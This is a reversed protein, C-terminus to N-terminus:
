EDQDHYVFEYAIEKSDLTISLETEFREQVFTYTLGKVSRLEWGGLGNDIKDVYDFYVRNSANAWYYHEKERSISIPELGAPYLLDDYGHTVYLQENHVYPEKGKLELTSMAHFIEAYELKPYNFTIHVWNEDTFEVFFHYRLAADMTKAHEIYMTMPYPFNELTEEVFMPLSHVLEQKEEESVEAVTGVEVPNDKRYLLIGDGTKEPYVDTLMWSLQNYEFSEEYATRPQASEELILWLFSGCIMLLIAAAIFNKLLFARRPTHVVQHDQISKLLRTRMKDKQNKTSGIQQLLKWQDDFHKNM